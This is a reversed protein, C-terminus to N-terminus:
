IRRILIFRRETKRFLMQIHIKTM